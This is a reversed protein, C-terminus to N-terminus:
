ILNLLQQIQAETVKTKGFTYVVESNFPDTQELKAGFLNGITLNEEYGEFSGDFGSTRM